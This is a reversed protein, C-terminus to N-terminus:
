AATITCARRSRPFRTAWCSARAVAARSSATRRSWAAGDWEWTDSLYNSGNYGGFMIISDCNDNYAAAHFARASPGNSALLTWANGDWKWTDGYYNTGQKEGGVLLLQKQASGYAM